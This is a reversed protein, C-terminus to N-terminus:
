ISTSAALAATQRNTGGTIGQLVGHLDLATQSHAYKLIYPSKMCVTEHVRDDFGVNGIFQIRMGLHKEIIKCILTGTRPNDRKRVQNVVLKFQFAQLIKEINGGQEPDIQKLTTLLYEPHQIVADRNQAEAQGALNRFCNIQLVQRIKRIYVSRILRYINEISTPEPICVFIGSDSLTFFDITNFATGAGLDLLIYDYHLRSIARLMKMKQEHAFNAIDLKNRAGSILFLNHVPMELVTEELTSVTKNVFDSLSTKPNPLGIITHLNPTGLDADILLTKYGQRALLIGINITLFSKGTGGKGGGIPWIFPTCESRSQNISNM